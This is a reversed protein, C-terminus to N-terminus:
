AERQSQLTVLTFDDGLERPTHDYFYDTVQSALDSNGGPRTMINRLVDCLRDPDLMNGDTLPTEILADSYLMLFCDDTFATERTDYHADATVGLPVGSGDLFEFSQGHNRGVIPATSAACAYQFRANKRDIIGYMMTAYQGVPLLRKLHVNLAALYAGPDNLVDGDSWMLSHLRFTNLAAGIGHGAFDVLYVALRDKDLPALGWMDGGLESSMQFAASISLGYDRGIPRYYDPRPILMEQMDHALILESQTRDRYARLQKVLIRHELHIKVRALLESKNLPKLILDTAGDQFIRTRGENEELATQAIIPLDIYAPDSRLEKCVDYGDMGPMIIDLILLDVQHRHVQEIADNGDRAFLLNTFGAARLYSAVIERSIMTDDAILIHAQHVEDPTDQPSDEVPSAAPEAASAALSPRASTQSREKDAARPLPRPQATELSNSLSIQAGTGSFRMRITRGEREFKLDHCLTKILSLGRGFTSEGGPMTALDTKAPIAFGRGQDHIFIEVGGDNLGRAALIIARRGYTTDALRDRTKQELAHFKEMSLHGSTDIEMNGHLLSNSFAEQVAIELTPAIKDDLVNRRRLATVFKRAIPLHYASQTSLCALLDWQPGPYPRRLPSLDGLDLGEYAEIFYNCNLRTLAGLWDPTVLSPLFCAQFRVDRPFDEIGSGHLFRVEADNDPTFLDPGATIRQATRLDASGAIAVRHFLPMQATLDASAPM